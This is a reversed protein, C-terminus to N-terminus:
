ISANARQLPKLEVLLIGALICGAGSLVQGTLVEHEFVYSTLWAFVPELSFILAARTPTTYRQGWTQLLFAFATGLCATVALAVLVRPSWRVFPTELFGCAVMSFVACAGIQLLTLWETSVRKAYHDLLLIHVAFAFACGLTLLDGAGIELRATTLTMLGMGATALGVGVWESLGPAKQYVAATLLPVLVIYLGTLFGSKAPTTFQLGLTQLLYGIFLLLGTVVGGWWVHADPKKRAAYVLLLLVTAISFRFALFLSPSVDNLANKVLVFTSGWILCVSALALEALRSKAAAAGATM